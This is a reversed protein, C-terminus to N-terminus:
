DDEIVTDEIVTDEIPRSDIIEGDIVDQGYRDGFRAGFGGATYGGVDIRHSFRAAVIRRVIARTPPILLVFGLTDTLFGPTLLLAGAFLILFGDILADGPLKGQALQLQVRAMASLGQHKVLWAGFVSVVILLLITELTGIGQAVQVIVFLEAIPVILFLLLLLGFM